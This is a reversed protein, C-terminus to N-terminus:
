KFREIVEILKQSVKHPYFKKSREFGKESLESCLEPDKIVDIIKKTIDSVDYPNIYVAADGCVETLSTVNSTIVPCGQSMAELPPLGFGEYFSPFIFLAAKRYLQILEEDSVRGTFEIRDYKYIIDHNSFIKSKSGVIVLRYNEIEKSVSVWSNILNKVNKRPDMSGVFLVFKERKEKKWTTIFKHDLSAPIVTVRDKPIHYRACIKLKSYESVTIIHKTRKLLNSWLFSYWTAFVKNFWEPHEIVAIDHITIIQNKYLIPGTNCPSWLLERNLKLPLIFQEWFQGYYKNEISPQIIIAKKIYPLSSSLYRQVGTLPSLLARTNIFLKSM